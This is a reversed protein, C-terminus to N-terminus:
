PPWPRCLTVREHMDCIQLVREAILSPDHIALSRKRRDQLVLLWELFRVGASDIMRVESLDLVISGASRSADCVADRIRASEFACLDGSVTILAARGRGDSRCSSVRLELRTRSPDSPDPVRCLLREDSSSAHRQGCCALPDRARPQDIDFVSM